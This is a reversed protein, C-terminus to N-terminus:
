EFGTGSRDIKVVGGEAWVLTVSQAGNRGVSVACDIGTADVGTKAVYEAVLANGSADYRRGKLDTGDIWFVWVTGDGSCCVTPYEGSGVTAMFDWRGSEDGSRYLEVAGADSLVMWRVPEGRRAWAIRVWDASIKQTVREYPVPDRNGRGEELVWESGDFYGWAHRASRAVDVFPLSGDAEGSTIALYGHWPSALAFTEADWRIPYTPGEDNDLELDHDYVDWGSVAFLASTAGIETLGPDTQSLADSQSVLFRRRSCYSWTKLLSDAGTEALDDGRDRNPCGISPPCEAWSNILLVSSEGNKTVTAALAHEAVDDPTSGERADYLAAIAAGDTGAARGQLFVDKWCLWDWVKPVYWPDRVSPSHPALTDFGLSGFRGGPGDAWLLAGVQATEPVVTPATTAPTVTPYALTMSAGASTLTVVFRLFRATRGRLLRPFASTRADSFVAGSIGTPKSDTGTDRGLFALFGFEQSWSGAYKAAGPSAPWSYTGTATGLVEEYGDWGVLRVSVASVSAGSWSVAFTEALMAAGYPSASFSLLDLDVTVSTELPDATVTIAAGHALSGGGASWLSSDSPVVAGSLSLLDARQFRSVGWWSVNQAYVMSSVYGALGSEDLPELVM